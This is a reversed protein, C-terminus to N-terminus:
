VIIVDPQEFAAPQGVGLDLSKGACQRCLPYLRVRDESPEIVTLIRRKLIEYQPGDAIIEFVSHQVRDGFDELVDALRTRRQDDSVDYALVWYQMM